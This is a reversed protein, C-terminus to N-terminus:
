EHESAEEAHATFGARKLVQRGTHTDEDPITRTMPDDFSHGCDYCVWEAVTENTYHRDDVHHEIRTSECEPCADREIM